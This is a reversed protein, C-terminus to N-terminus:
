YRLFCRLSAKGPLRFCRWGSDIRGSCKLVSYCKAGHNGEKNGIKKKDSEGVRNSCSSHSLKFKTQRTGQQRRLVM